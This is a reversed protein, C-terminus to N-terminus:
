MIICALRVTYMCKVSKVNVFIFAIVIILVTCTCYNLNHTWNMVHVTYMCVEAQYYVIQDSPNVSPKAIRGREM